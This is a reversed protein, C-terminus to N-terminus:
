NLAKIITTTTTKIRLKSFAVNFRTFPCKRKVIRPVDQALTVHANDATLQTCTPDTTCLSPPDTEGGGEMLGRSDPDRREAAAYALQEGRQAFGM